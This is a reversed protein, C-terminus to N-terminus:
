REHHSGRLHRKMSQTLLRVPRLLGRHLLKGHRLDRFVDAHPVGGWLRNWVAEGARVDNLLIQQNQGAQGLARFLLRRHFVFADKMIASKYGLKYMRLAFDINEWGAIFEENFGKLELFLAKRVAYFTLPLQSLPVRMAGPKERGIDELIAAIAGEPEAPLHKLDEGTEDLVKLFAQFSWNRSVNAENSDEYISLPHLAGIKKHKGFVAGMKLLVKPDVILADCSMYVLIDGPNDLARIGRNFGGSCGYNRDLEILRIRPYKEPLRKLYESTLPAQAPDTNNVLVVDVDGELTFISEIAAPLARPHSFRDYPDYVVLVLTFTM